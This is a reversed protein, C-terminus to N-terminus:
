QTRKAFWRGVVEKEYEMGHVSGLHRRVDYARSFVFKCRSEREGEGDRGEQASDVDGIQMSGEGVVPHSGSRSPNPFGEMSPYPCKIKAKANSTHEQARTYAAGTIFDISWGREATGEGEDGPEDDGDGDIEVRPRGCKNEGGGKVLNVGAEESEEESDSEVVHDREIHRKL